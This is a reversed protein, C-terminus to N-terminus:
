LIRTVSLVVGSVTLLVGASVTAYRVATARGRLAYAMLFHAAAIVTLQGLEVGVNFAVLPVLIQGEKLGSEALVGAFGLGHFLGFVFVTAVKIAFTKSGAKRLIEVGVIAISLAIGAEVLAAPLVVLSKVGLYLTLSHAITFTTVLTVIRRLTAAMFYVGIIFLIHDFGLPLIHVYGVWIFNRIQQWIDPNRIQAMDIVPSPQAQEVWLTKVAGDSIERVRLIIPGFNKGYTWRINHPPEEGPVRLTLYTWRNTTLVPNPDIRIATVGLAAPTGDVELRIQAIFQPLFAEIERTLAPESLLRYKEYTAKQPANDTDAHKFDIGALLIEFNQKIIVEIGPKTAHFNIDVVAPSIEHAGAHRASALLGFMFVAVVILFTRVPLSDRIAAQTGM